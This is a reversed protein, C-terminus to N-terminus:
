PAPPASRLWNLRLLRVTGGGVSGTHRKQSAERALSSGGATRHSRKDQLVPGTLDSAECFQLDVLVKM